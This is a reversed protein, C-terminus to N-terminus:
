VFFCFFFKRDNLSLNTGAPVSTNGSFKTALGIQKKIKREAYVCEDSVFVCTWWGQMQNWIISNSQRHFDHFNFFFVRFNLRVPVNRGVDPGPKLLRERWLLVVLPTSRCLDFNGRPMYILWSSMTVSAFCSEFPRPSSRKVFISRSILVSNVWTLVGM